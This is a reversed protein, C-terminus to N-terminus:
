GSQKRDVNLTPWIPWQDADQLKTLENQEGGCGSYDAFMAMLRNVPTYSRRTLVACQITRPNIGTYIFYQLIIFHCCLLCRAFILQGLHVCLWGDNSQAWGDLKESGLPWRYQGSGLCGSEVGTTCGHTDNAPVWPDFWGHLDLVAIHHPYHVSKMRARSSPPTAFTAFGKLLGGAVPAVAAFVDPMSLALQYTFMGGFSFGTSYIRAPDVNLAEQLTSLLLEVFGIDDACTCCNCYSAGSTNKCSTYSIDKAGYTLLNGTKSKAHICTSGLPGPSSSCGGGNWSPTVAAGWGGRVRQAAARANMDGMGQPYVVIFSRTAPLQDALRSMGTYLEQAKASSSWGHFSLVLPLLTGAPPKQAPLHLLYQRSTNRVILTHSSTVGPRGRPLPQRRPSPGHDHGVVPLRDRPCRMAVSGVDHAMGSAALEAACESVFPLLVVACRFNCITPLGKSCISDSCCAANVAAARGVIGQAGCYGQGVVVLLQSSSWCCALLLASVAAPRPLRMPQAGASFGYSAVAVLCRRDQAARPTRGAPGLSSASVLAALTGTPRSHQCYARTCRRTRQRGAAAAQQGQQQPLPLRYATRGAAATCV